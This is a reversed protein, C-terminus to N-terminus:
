PKILVKVAKPSLSRAFAKEADELAFRDTILDTPNLQTSELLSLAKDMPGCRSGIITVENVVLQSLDVAVRDGYTSKLVLCGRPKVANVATNFGTPNGSCEIVLDFQKAPLDTVLSTSIGLTSLTKLSNESRATVLLNIDHLALTRAILQGLKGAGILLVDPKSGLDVQEQIELAAALPEAFVAQEDSVTPPVIFLNENPLTIYESFAGPHDKIGLVKRQQCHHVLGRHCSSCQHCPINIDAVVRQGMLHKPGQEVVGVFEHGPVGSFSYYGTALEQDTACLGALSIKILSELETPEPIPLSVLSIQKDQLWIAKM